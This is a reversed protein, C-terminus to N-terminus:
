ARSAASEEEAEMEAVFDRKSAQWADETMGIRWYGSISARHKPLGREVFLYRRVDKIMEAVGHVFADFETEPLDAERIARVLAQGPLEEGRHVWTVPGPMDTQHDAGAVEILTVVRAGAPVEEMARAIAPLASEDGALLLVDTEAPPAWAGGPGRFTIQEGASAQQVWRGAVGHDHTVFDIVLRQADADFSRITYTRTVPWHAREQEEKVADVDTIPLGYPAGEPPFLFKVYHDTWPLEPMETLDAGTFEVRVLDPTLTQVRDVTVTKLTKKPSESMLGM